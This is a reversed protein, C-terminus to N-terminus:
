SGFNNKSNVVAEADTKLRAFTADELHDSLPLNTKSQYDNWAARVTKGWLGDMPGPHLGVYTLYFQAARVDLDPLGGANM